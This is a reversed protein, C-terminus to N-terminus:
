EPEKINYKKLWRYLTKTSIGLLRAAQSKNGRTEKLASIIAAKEAEKINLHTGPKTKESAIKDLKEKISKLETWIHQLNELLLRSSLTPDFKAPLARNFEQHEEFYSSIDERTIIKGGSLLVAKEVFNKLERVNGPWHYNMMADFADSSFGPYNTKNKQSIDQLFKYALIPIDKPRERLPPIYITAGSLRFYLDQRFKESAVAQKLDRNTAAILRFDSKIPTKGGVRFFEKGELIRLLKVQANVPLEGVEDLFITGSNALEFFGQHKEIAGTFAGKEHGFLESELLSEPIAGCNVAIFPGEKRRSHSHIARAVLEKGVGSEGIILVTVDAPGLKIILEAIELLEDSRGVLDCETLIDKKEFLQNIKTIDRENPPYRVILDVINEISPDVSESEETFIVVTLLPNRKLLLKATYELDEKGIMLFAGDFTKEKLAKVAGNIDNFRESEFHEKFIDTLSKTRKEVILIRKKM